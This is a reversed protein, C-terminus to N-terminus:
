SCADTELIRSSPRECVLVRGNGPDQEFAARMLQISREAPDTGLHRRLARDVEPWKESRALLVHGLYYKLETSDPNRRLGEELVQVGEVVWRARATADRAGGALNYALHWGRYEWASALRPQLNGLAEFATRMEAWRGEEYLAEARLMVLDAGLVGAVGMSPIGGASRAADERAEATLRTMGLGAGLFLLAM